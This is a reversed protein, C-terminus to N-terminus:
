PVVNGAGTGLLGGHTGAQGGRYALAGNPAGGAGGGVPHHVLEEGVRGGQRLGRFRSLLIGGAKQEPM